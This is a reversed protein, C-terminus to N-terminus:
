PGEDVLSFEVKDVYVGNVPSKGDENFRGPGIWFFEDPSPVWTAVTYWAYGDGVDKTRPQVGGRGCKAGNSYVGAWFAEGDRAKDVRVRVRLRYKKGPEFAIKGMSLQTSWQFHTNFLKLARGDGALPDDVYNGWVGPNQLPICRDELEASDSRNTAVWGDAIRKWHQVVSTRDCEALSINKAEDMRDLLSKALGKLTEPPLGSRSKVLNLLKHSREMRVYDFSFRAMRVNYSTAPDDKVAAVAKDWLPVMEELFSDPIAPNTVGDFILLPHAPQSSYAMQLQHQKEFYERVFPAGKGYYGAFFDDLLDKMPLDPNWMWKALLWVKLEAFDAHRGQYAGQEFIAKVNNRRFFQLNGQLAYVNPWPMTYHAFDTTYDWIYLFDTLRSWDAIDKRFSINESFPSKDIPLAFDCEITCLCPVVNHRLKTKKPAKRTYQYALTEIIVDPFEKEVAEAIANVFRIMTGAHSGEEDDVAKCAPCECFNYWDNQSVGYFKAGPDKRICELVNSTVIRLVDPNTLCLQTRDRIRRGKVLSFYEPHRDFYDKPSLLKDFTHCSGLGGGFRYPNGGYKEDFVKWSRSNVRLRAAFAPHATVDYWYPERMAFAPTQTDDLNAPVEIRDRKPAVTHWSAYWRCGAFRELVEYVGYLTGRGNEGRIGLRAGKVKLRFGDMGGPERETGLLIAKEPIKVGKAIAIVPLSVGTTKETWNRLEEAAYRVPESADAPVVISYEAAKGREAITLAPRPFINTVGVGQRANDGLLASAVLGATLVVCGKMFGKQLSM